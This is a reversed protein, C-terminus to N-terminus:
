ITPDEEFISDYPIRAETGNFRAIKNLSDVGQEQKGHVFLWQPSEPCFLCIVLATYGLILAWFCLDFWNKSVFM